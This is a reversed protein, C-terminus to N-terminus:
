ILHARSTSATPITKRGAGDFAVDALIHLFFPSDINPCLGPLTVPRQGPLSTHLVPSWQYYDSPIALPCLEPTQEQAQIIRRFLGYHRGGDHKASGARPVDCTGSSLIHFQCFPVVIGGESVKSSRNDNCLFVLAGLTLVSVFAMLLLISLQM